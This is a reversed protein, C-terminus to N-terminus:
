TSLAQRPALLLERNNEDVLAAQEECWSAGGCCGVAAVRLGSGVVVASIKGTRERREKRPSCKRGLLDM